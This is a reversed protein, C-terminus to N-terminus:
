FLPIFPVNDEFLARSVWTNVKKEPKVSSPSLIGLNFNKAVKPPYM